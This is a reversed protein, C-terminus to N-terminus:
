DGWGFKVKLQESIKEVVENWAKDKKPYDEVPVGDKPLCLLKGIPTMKWICDRVIVPVILAEGKKHREMARVFEVEKIYKSALFDISVLLVIIDAAALQEKVVKDLEAGAGIQEDEWVEVKDKWNLAELWKLLDNKHARDEHAYSIFFKPTMDPKGSQCIKSIPVQKQCDPCFAKDEGAKKLKEVAARDLAADCDPCFLIERAEMDKNVVEFVDDIVLQCLGSVQDGAVSIRIEKKNYDAEILAQTGAKEILIGSRWYQGGPAYESLRVIARAILGRHLFPYAFGFRFAQPQNWLVTDPKKEPLFQPAIFAGPQGPVAFCIEFNRMLELFIDVEIDNRFRFATDFQQPIHQSWEDRLQQDTFSGGSKEVEKNLVRYIIETAWVPNLIVMERLTKHQPFHLLVGIETLFVSLKEPADASLQHKRCIDLYTDYKIYPQQLALAELERRVAIWNAPMDYGILDKLGPAAHYQELLKEQLRDIDTGTAASVECFDRVNFKPVFDKQNLPERGQEVKNQVMLVPSGASLMKVNQLWYEHTFNRDHDDRDPHEIADEQATKDWVLMYLARTTLFFRHTNHYVEQGGFDWVNIKLNRGDPLQVPWSKIRVGHTSNEGPDFNEGALVKSLSTKGVRGNGVFILKAENVRGETGEKELQEIRTRATDRHTGLITAFQYTQYAAITNTTEAVKWLEAEGNELDALIKEVESRHAGVPFTTLYSQIVSLNPNKRINEFLTEEQELLRLDSIWRQAENNYVGSKTEKLYNEFAAITNEALAKKWLNEEVLIVTAEYFAIKPVSTVSDFKESYESQLDKLNTLASQLDTEKERKKELATESLYAKRLDEIRAIERTIEDLLEKEAESRTKTNPQLSFQSLDLDASQLNKLLQLISNNIRNIERSDREFIDKQGLEDSKIDNWRNAQLTFDGWIQSEPKIIQQLENIAGETNGRAIKEQVGMMVIEFLMEEDDENGPGGKEPPEAGSEPPEMEPAKPPPAFPPQMAGGVNSEARPEILFEGGEDGAISLSSALAGHLISALERVSVEGLTNNKLWNTLHPTFRADWDAGVRYLAWRSAFSSRESEIGRTQSFQRSQLHNDVILLVHRAKMSSFKALIEPLPIYTNDYSRLDGEPLGDGTWGNFYVIVSDEAETTKCLNELANFIAERTAEENLLGTIAQYGYKQALVKALDRCEQVAGPRPQYNFQAPYNEIAIHLLHKKSEARQTNKTLDDFYARIAQIGQLAIELPPSKLPNNNLKIEKLIPLEAIEPPLTEIQCDNLHLTELVKLLRIGAPLRAIKNDSLHLTQLLPLELLEPPFESFRNSQLDLLTLKRFSALGFGTILENQSFFLSELNACLSMERPVSQFNNEWLNLVTLKPAIQTFNPPLANLGMQSLDLRTSGNKLAEEIRKAAAEM